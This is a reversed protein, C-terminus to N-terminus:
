YRGDQGDTGATPPPDISERAQLVRFLARCAGAARWKPFILSFLFPRNQCLVGNYPDNDPLDFIIQKARGTSKGDGTGRDRLELKAVIQSERMGSIARDNGPKTAEKL